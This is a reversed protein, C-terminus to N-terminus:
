FFIRAGTVEYKEDKSVIQSTNEDSQEGETVVKQADIHAQIADEVAIQENDPNDSKTIVEKCHSVICEIFDEETWHNLVKEKPDNEDWDITFTGDPNETVSITM